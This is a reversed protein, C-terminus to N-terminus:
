LAEQRGTSLTTSSSHSTSGILVEVRSDFGKVEDPEM